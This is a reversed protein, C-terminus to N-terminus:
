GEIVEVPVGPFHENTYQVGTGITVEMSLSANGKYPWTRLPLDTQLYLKDASDKNTIISIKVINIKM